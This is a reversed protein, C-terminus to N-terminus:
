ISVKGNVSFEVNQLKLSQFCLQMCFVCASIARRMWFVCAYFAQQLAAKIELNKEGFKFRMVVEDENTYFRLEDSKVFVKEEDLRDDLKFCIVRYNLFNWNWFKFLFILKV